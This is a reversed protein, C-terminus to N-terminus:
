LTQYFLLYISLYFKQYNVKIRGHPHQQWIKQRVKSSKNYPHFDNNIYVSVKFIFVHSNHKLNTWSGALDLYWVTPFFDIAQHRDLSATCHICIINIHFSSPFSFNNKSSCYVQPAIQDLHRVLPMAKISQSQQFSQLAFLFM